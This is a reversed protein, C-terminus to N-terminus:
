IQFWKCFIREFVGLFIFNVVPAEWHGEVGMIEMLLAVKRWGEVSM